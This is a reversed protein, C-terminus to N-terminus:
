KKKKQIQFTWKPILGEFPTDNMWFIRLTTRLTCNKAMHINITFINQMRFYAVFRSLHLLTHARSIPLYLFFITFSCFTWCCRNRNRHTSHAAAHFCVTACVRACNDVFLMMFIDSIFREKRDNDNDNMWKARESSCRRAMALRSYEIHVHSHTHKQAKQRCKIRKEKAAM